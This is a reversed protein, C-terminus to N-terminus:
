EYQHAFPCTCLLPSPVNWIGFRGAAEPQACAQFSPYTCCHATGSCLRVVFGLTSTASTARPLREMSGADIEVETGPRITVPLIRWDSEGSGRGAVSANM